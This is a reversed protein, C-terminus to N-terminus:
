RAAADVMPSTGSSAPDGPFLDIDRSWPWPDVSPSADKDRGLRVRVSVGRGVNARAADRRLFARIRYRRGEILLPVVRLWKTSLGEGTDQFITPGAAFNVFRLGHQPRIQNYGGVGGFGEM